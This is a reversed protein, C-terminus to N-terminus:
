TTARARDKCIQSLVEELSQPAMQLNVFGAVTPSAINDREMLEVQNRTSPPAPLLEGLSGIVKWLIFPIPLLIPEKGLSAGLMRLLSRYTYIRPGALEYIREPSPSRLLHTIAKAVDEVYVPQLKTDGGGFLPFVPLRRMMSLIPVLFADDPGFMVSPRILIASTFARLVAAEGEGRSRIYPSPSRADAGIGSIHVLREVGATAALQAM